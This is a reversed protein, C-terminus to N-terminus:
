LSFFFMLLSKNKLKIRLIKLASKMHTAATAESIGMESSIEKITLFKKRKLEFVERMRPPLQSIEYEIMAAFEKERLLLDPTAEKSTASVAFIEESNIGIRKRRVHDIVLNRALLFLFGPFTFSLDLDSRKAWFKVFVEQVIDEAEQQNRLKNYVHSYLLGNYREFVIAYATKDSDFKILQVLKIDDYRNYKSM